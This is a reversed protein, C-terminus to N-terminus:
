RPSKDPKTEVGASYIANFLVKFTGHAQARFQGRFGILVASGQGLRAQVLAAKGHIVESNELWGSMLPNMHPYTAVCDVKFGPKYQAMFPDEKKDKPRELNEFVPSNVYMIPAARNMGFALPHAPDLDIRLLSGPCFFRKEEHGRDPAGMYERMREEANRDRRMINKVPIELQDILFDCSSDMAILTGGERFFDRLAFVGEKGIGGTYREPVEGESRGEIISRPSLDPLLIVDYRDKLRGARIEADHITRFPFEFRELVWRTWGEDM